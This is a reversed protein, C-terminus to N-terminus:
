EVERPATYGAKSIITYKVPKNNETIKLPDGTSSVLEV